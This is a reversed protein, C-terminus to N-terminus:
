GELDSKAEILKDAVTSLKYGRDLLLDCEDIPYGMKRLLFLAAESEHKSATNTGTLKGLLEILFAKEEAKESQIDALVKAEIADIDDIEAFIEEWNSDIDNVLRKPIEFRESPAGDEKSM